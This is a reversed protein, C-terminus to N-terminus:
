NLSTEPSPESNEDDRDDRLVDLDARDVVGDDNVDLDAMAWDDDPGEGPKAQEVASALMAELDEVRAAAEPNTEAEARAASLEDELAAIGNEAATGFNAQMAGVRAGYGLAKALAVMTRVRDGHNAFGELPQDSKWGRGILDKTQRPTFEHAARLASPDNSLNGDQRQRDPVIEKNYREKARGIKHDKSAAGFAKGSRFDDFVESLSRNDSSHGNQGGSNDKSRESQNGRDGRDRGGRDGGGRGNGGGKEGGKKAFAAKSSLELTTMDIAMPASALGVCILATAALRLLRSRHSAIPLPM